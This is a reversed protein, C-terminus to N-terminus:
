TAEMPTLPEGLIASWDDLQPTAVIRTAPYAAGTRSAQAPSIGSLGLWGGPKLRREIEPALAILVEQGINALIVDFTGPLEQLPTAQASVKRALGNRAANAETAAVAAPDVDIGVASAAGLRVAVLALVGSGCGVDLVREGGRLHAALAELLLRTTPHSGGGFAAGPDIQLVPATAQDLEAWPPAVLLRGEAVSVPQTRHRWAVIHPDDDTPRQAASWGQRRLEAVVQRATEEDACRGYVLSRRGRVRMPLLDGVGQERLAAAAARLRAQEVGIVALTGM